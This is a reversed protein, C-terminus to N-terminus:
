FHGESSGSWCLLYCLASVIVQLVPKAINEGQMIAQLFSFCVRLVAGGGWEHVSGSGRSLLFQQLVALSVPTAM